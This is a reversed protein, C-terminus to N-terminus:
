SKNRHNYVKQIYRSWLEKQYICAAENLQNENDLGTYICGGSCLGVLQCDFCYKKIAEARNRIFSYARHWLKPHYINYGLEELPSWADHVYACMLSVQLTSVNLYVTLSPPCSLGRCNFSFSYGEQNIREKAKSFFLETVQFPHRDNLELFKEMVRAKKLADEASVNLLNPALRAHCFGYKEMKYVEEPQFGSICDITGQFMNIPNKKNFQRYIRLGELIDAFSGRGDAYQRTRDHANEYGDISIDVRFSYKNLFKAIEETMLTLNTNMHFDFRVGKYKETLWQIIDKILDWELLIEGGNFSLKVPEPEANTELKRSVYHELCEKIIRWCREKSIKKIASQNKRKYQNVCYPCRLNCQDNFITMGDYAKNIRSFDHVEKKLVELAEEMMKLFDKKSPDTKKDYIFKHKFLEKFFWETEENHPITEKNKLREVIELAFRNLIFIAPFFRNWGIIVDKDYDVQQFHLYHSVKVDKM